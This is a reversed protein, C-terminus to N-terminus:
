LFGDSSLIEQFRQLGLSQQFFNKKLFGETSIYFSSIEAIGWLNNQTSFLWFSWYADWFAEKSFLTALPAPTLVM